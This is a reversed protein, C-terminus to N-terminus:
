SSPMAQYEAITHLHLAEAGM